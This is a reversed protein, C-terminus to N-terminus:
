ADLTDLVTEMLMRQHLQRRKCLESDVQKRGLLAPEYRGAAILDGRKASFWGDSQDEFGLRKVRGVSAPQRSRTPFFSYSSFHRPM